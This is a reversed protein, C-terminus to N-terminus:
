KCWSRLEYADLKIETEGSVKEGTILDHAGEPFAFVIARPAADANVAYFYTRGRFDATRIKVHGDGGCDTMKVAPLARFARMWPVLLDEMGYTGILFGGKSFTMVDYHYLPLAFMRLAHRGAPNLTTVRWPHETFWANGLTSGGKARKGTVAGCASEFYRDHINVWPYPAFAINDFDGKRTYLVRHAAAAAVPDSARKWRGPLPGFFRYDAPIETQAVTLGPVDKLLRVDLGARRNAEYIFNEQGFDPHGVDPLLFTNVVFRLDRRAAVTKAALRKYFDAVVGCRWAIWKECLEKDGTIVEYYAKGRLPDDQAVRSRVEVNESREFAEICYDNYGAMIDGFWSLSNRSLYLVIGKFSPHRVGEALFIEVAREIEGQVQPHAINFNPPTGHWGGNPEGSSQISVATPHLSGDRLSQPTIRRELEGPYQLSLQMIVPMFGLGERDFREMYAERYRPHHPRPQYEEGIVGHYWSGPYCFLNQGTYKMAAIVRDCMANFSTDDIGRFGFDSNIAPDEFYLAFNRRWGEDNAEPESIPAEPLAGDKVEYVRVEGVAAPAGARATMVVLGVDDSSARAPDNWYLCRHTLMKGTNAYEDGCLIGCQMAYDGGGDCRQIIIDMTRLADDPYDIEIVHLPVGPKLKLRMVFRDNARSGAELYRGKVKLEGIANFVTADKMMELPSYTALLATNVPVGGTGAAAAVLRNTAISKLAPLHRAADGNKRRMAVVEAAISPPPEAFLEAVEGGTLPRPLIRFDEIVGGLHEQGHRTGIFFSTPEAYKAFTFGALRKRAAAILNSSDSRRRVSRGDVYLGLGTERDWAFVLHTWVGDEIRRGSQLYSDHDDSFDARPRGEHIWFWLAGSGTRSGKYPTAFVSRYQPPKGNSVDLKVWCSVSGRRMDLKGAIDHRLAKAGQRIELRGPESFLAPPLAATVPLALSLALLATGVWPMPNRKM